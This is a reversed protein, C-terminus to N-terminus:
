IMMRKSKIFAGIWGVVSGIVMVAGGILGFTSGSAERVLVAEGFNEPDYFVEVEGGVPYKALYEEARSSSNYTPRSGFDVRQSTFTGENVVYSYDVVPRFDVDTFGDEDTSEVRDISTNTITGATSLWAQSEEALKMGNVTVYLWVAGMGFVFLFILTNCGMGRKKM